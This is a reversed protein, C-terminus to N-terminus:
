TGTQYQLSRLHVPMGHRAAGEPRQTRAHTCTAMTRDAAHGSWSTSRVVSAVASSSVFPRWSDGHTTITPATTPRAHCPRLTAVRPPTPPTPPHQHTAAAAAAAAGIRRLRHLYLPLRATSPTPRQPQNTGALLVALLWWATSRERPHATRHIPQTAATYRMIISTSCAALSRTSHGAKITQTIAHQTM